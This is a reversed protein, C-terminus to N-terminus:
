IMQGNFLPLHLKTHTCVYFFQLMFVDIMYIILNLVAKQIADFVADTEHETILLFLLNGNKVLKVPWFINWKWICFSLKISNVYNEM